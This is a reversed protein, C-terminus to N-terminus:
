DPRATAIVLEDLWFSQAVPSGDGIYPTILFQNFVMDPHAGTRFLVNDSSIIVDGDQVWRLKGNPVGIGDGDISNLEFYAEVLHWDGKYQPGAQDVFTASPASWARSSYWYSGFYCDRRAVDGVLGNCSAASRQETFAYTSFDGDCGVFTDDNRLICDADVNRSDQQALLPRGGVVEVYTTLHSNAPGVYQGDKNTVFHMMHPHYPRESGVWNDSFKIHFKLYVSQTEPIPVRAPHGGTCGTAGVAYSCRYSSAGAVPDVDDLTAVAGDYWGRSGLNADDFSETLLVTGGGPIAGGGADSSADVAADGSPDSGGDDTGGASDRGSCAVLLAFIGVSWSARM